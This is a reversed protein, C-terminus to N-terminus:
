RPSVAALPWSRVHRSPSPALPSLARALHRAKPSCTASGPEARAWAVGGAVPSALRYRWVRISSGSPGVFAFDLPEQSTDSQAIEYFFQTRQASNGADGPLHNSSERPTPGPSRRRNDAKSRGGPPPWLDSHPEVFVLAVRCDRALVAHRESPRVWGSAAPCFGARRARCECM